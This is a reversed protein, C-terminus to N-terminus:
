YNYVIYDVYIAVTLVIAIIDKAITATIAM